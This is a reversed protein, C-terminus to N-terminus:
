DEELKITKVMEDFDNKLKKMMKDPGVMRIYYSYKEGTIIVGLLRVGPRDSEKRGGFSVPYYHGSTKLEPLKM